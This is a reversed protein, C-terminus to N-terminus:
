KTAAIRNPRAHPARPPGATGWRKAITRAIPSLGRLWGQHRRPEVGAMRQYLELHRRVMSDISYTREAHQSMLQSNAQYQSYHNLLHAISATVDEVTGHKLLYGFGAAQEPIGGVPSAVFPLGCLMAETIVSPLAETRSPLVLLDSTRYLAALQRPEVKGAFRVREAIDLSEALSKLERELASNQYVMTLQFDHRLRAVARLLVDCRKMPILQGSFLLQWPRGIGATNERRFSYEDTNIGNPITEHTARHLSYVDRQRQGELRSLSVTADAMWLVYGMALKTPTSFPIGSMHSTDHPTFLFPTTSPDAAMRLAGYSLHHVHVVDFRQFDVEDYHSLTTVDHGAARCGAALTTEPTIKLYDTPAGGKAYIGGIICIKM